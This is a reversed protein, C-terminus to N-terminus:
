LSHQDTNLLFAHFFFLIFSYDCTNKTKIITKNVSSVPLFHASEAAEAVAKNGM